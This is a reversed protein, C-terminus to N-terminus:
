APCPSLPRTRRPRSACMPRCRRGGSWRPRGPLAWSPRAARTSSTRRTGAKAAATEIPHDQRLKMFLRMQHDTVHQGPM